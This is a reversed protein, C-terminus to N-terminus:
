STAITYLGGGSSSVYLTAKDKAGRGFAVSSATDVTAIQTRTGNAYIRAVGTSRAATYVSGDPAFAFDEVDTLSTLISVVAGSTKATVQDIKVKNYTGGFTNTFYLYGEYYKLGHIGEQIFANSPPKMSSDALVVSYDGTTISMKYLTGKAADAIFFTENDFPTVGIVFGSEPILKLFTTKAAAGTLDVKWVGWSGATISFNSVSFNGSVVVFVDPKIETIGTLGLAGPFSAVKTGAKTSPDFSWLEPVDLHSLLVNGNSRVAINEIWGSGNYVQTPTDRKLVVAGSVTALCALALTFHSFHM